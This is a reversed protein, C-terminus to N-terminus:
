SSSCWQMKEAIEQLKRLYAKTVNRPLEQYTGPQIKEWNWVKQLHRRANRAFLLGARDWFLMFVNKCETQASKASNCEWTIKSFCQQPLIQRTHLPVSQVAPGATGSFHYKYWDRIAAKLLGLNAWSWIWQIAIAIHDCPSTTPRQVTLAISHLLSVGHLIQLPFAVILQCIEMRICYPLMVWSNLQLSAWSHCMDVNNSLMEGRYHFPQYAQLVQYQLDPLLELWAGSGASAAPMASWTTERYLPLTMSWECPTPTWLLSSILNLCPIYM